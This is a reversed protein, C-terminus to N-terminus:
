PREAKRSVGALAAALLAEADDGEGVAHRSLMDMATELDRATHIEALDMDMEVLTIAMGPDIGAVATHMGLMKAIRAMEVLSRAVFTDLVDAGSIEIVLGKAPLRAADEAIARKLDRLLQDSLETQVSVILFGHLYIVPISRSQM